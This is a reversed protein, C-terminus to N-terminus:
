RGALLDAEPEAQEPKGRALPLADGVLQEVADPQEVPPIRTGPLQGAPLLLADREGDSEGV